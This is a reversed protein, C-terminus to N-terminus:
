KELKRYRVYAIVALVSIVLIAPITYDEIGTSPNSPAPEQEEVVTNVTNDPEQEPTPDTSAEVVSLSISQDAPHIDNNGDSSEVDRVTITTNGLNANDKVKLTVKVAEHDEAIFSSNDTVGEGTAENFMVAGWGNSATFNEGKVTEFIAKDYDLVFYFTNIGTRGATFNTLSITLEVEGGVEVQTSSAAIGVNFSTSTTVDSAFVATSCMSLVLLVTLVISLTKKM